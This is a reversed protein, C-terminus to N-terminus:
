DEEPESEDTEHDTSYIISSLPYQREIGEPEEGQDANSENEEDEDTEEFEHITFPLHYREELETIPIDQLEEPLVDRTFETPDYKYLASDTFTLEGENLSIYILDFPVPEVTLGTIYLGILLGDFIQAEDPQYDAEDIWGEQVFFDWLKEADYHVEDYLHVLRDVLRYREDRTSDIDEDLDTPLKLINNKSATVLRYEEIHPFPLVEAALENLQVARNMLTDTKQNYVQHLDMIEQSLDEIKDRIPRILAVRNRSPSNKRTESIQETLEEFRENMEKIQPDEREQERTARTQDELKDALLEQYRARFQDGKLTPHAYSYLRKGPFDHEIKRKWFYPDRCVAAHIQSQRCFLPLDSYPVRIAIEILIENAPNENEELDELNETSSGTRLHPPRTSRGFRDTVLGSPQDPLEM